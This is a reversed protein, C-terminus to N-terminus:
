DDNFEMLELSYGMKYHSVINVGLASMIPRLPAVITRIQQTKLLGKKHNRRVSSGWISAALDIISVRDPYEMALKYLLAAARPQVHRSKTKRRIVSEVLSVHLKDPAVADRYEDLMAAAIKARQKTSIHKDLRTLCVTAAEVNQASPDNKLQQSLLGAVKLLNELDVAQEVQNM